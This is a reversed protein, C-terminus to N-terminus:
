IQAIDGAVRQIQDMWTRLSPAYERPVCDGCIERALRATASLSSRLMPSAQSRGLDVCRLLVAFERFVSALSALIMELVPEELAQQPRFLLDHVAHLEGAFVIAISEVRAVAAPPAIEHGECLQATTQLETRVLHLNTRVRGLRDEFAIRHIESILEEQRRSVFRSILMGFLVLGAISEGIALLRAFGTPVIDGYGVSTATVASFYLAALFGRVDHTLPAGNAELAHNQLLEFVWYIVGCGVVTAIWLQFLSAVSRNSLRDVFRASAASAPKFIQAAGAVRHSTLPGASATTVAGDQSDRHRPEGLRPDGSATNTWEALGGPYHRV